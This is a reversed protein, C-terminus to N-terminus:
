ENITLEQQINMPLFLFTIRRSAIELVQYDVSVKEGERAYFLEEGVKLFVRLGEEDQLRGLYQFPLNPPVPPPPPPASLVVPPEVRVTPVSPPLSHFLTNQSLVPRPALVAALMAHHRYQPIRIIEVAAATTSDGGSESGDLTLMVTLLLALMLVWLRFKTM